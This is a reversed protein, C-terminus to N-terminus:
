WVLHYLFSACYGGHSVPIWGLTYITCLHFNGCTCKGLELVGDHLIGTTGADAVRLM